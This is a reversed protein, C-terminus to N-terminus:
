SKGYRLREQIERVNDKRWVRWKRLATNYQYNSKYERRRPYHM